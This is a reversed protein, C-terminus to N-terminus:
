LPRKGSPTWFPFFWCRRCARDRGPTFSVMLMINLSCFYCASCKWRAGRRSIRSTLYLLITICNERYVEILQDALQDLLHATLSIIFAGFPLSADVDVCNTLHHIIGLTYRDREREIYICLSLSLFMYIYIYIYIHVNM